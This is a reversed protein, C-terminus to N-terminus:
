GRLPECVAATAGASNGPAASDLVLRAKEIFERHDSEPLQLQITEM